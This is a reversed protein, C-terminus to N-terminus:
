GRNILDSEAAIDWWSDWSTLTTGPTPLGDGYRNAVIATWSSYLRLVEVARM